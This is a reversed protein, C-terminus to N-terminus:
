AGYGEIILALPAAQGPLIFPTPTAVAVGTELLARTAAQLTNENLAAETIASLRLRTEELQAETAALWGLADARAYQARHEFLQRFGAYAHQALGGVGTELQAVVPREAEMFAKASAVFAAEDQEYAARLAAEARSMFAVDAMTDLAALEAQSRQHITSGEVHCLLALRGKPALVRGAEAFAQTGAYELGFQSAVHMFAGDAFPLNAADGTVGRLSPMETELKRLAAPAVDFAINLGKMPGHRLVSAAGCAIDLRPGASNELRRKWFAELAPNGQGDGRTYVEGQARGEEWYTAWREAANKDQDTM